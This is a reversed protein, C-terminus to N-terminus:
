EYFIELDKRTANVLRSLSSRPISFLEILENYTFAGSLSYKAILSRIDRQKYAYPDLDEFMRVENSDALTRIIIRVEDLTVLYKESLDRASYKGTAYFIAIKKQFMVTYKGNPAVGDDFSLIQKGGTNKVPKAIDEVVEGISSSNVMNKMMDSAVSLFEKMLSIEESSFVGVSEPVKPATPEAIVEAVEDVVKKTAPKKKAMKKSTAVKKTPNEDAIKWKRLTTTSVGTEKAVARLSKGGKLESLCFKKMSEGYKLM